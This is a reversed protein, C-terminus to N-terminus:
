EHRMKIEDPWTAIIGLVGAFAGWITASLYGRDVDAWLWGLLFIVAWLIKIFMAVAYGPSDDKKFAYVLCITGVVAWLMAWIELPLVAALFSYTPQIVSNPSPFVLSFAYIYDLITLFLLFTGRRGIKRLIPHKAM